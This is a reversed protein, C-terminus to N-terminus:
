GTPDFGVQYSRMEGRMREQLYGTFLTYSQVAGERRAMAGRVVQPLQVDLNWRGNLIPAKFQLSMTKGDAVYGL